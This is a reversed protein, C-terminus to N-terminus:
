TSTSGALADDIKDRDERDLDGSDLLVGAAIFLWQPQRSDQDIHSIVFRLYM